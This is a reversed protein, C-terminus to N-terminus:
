TMNQLKVCLMMDVKLQRDNLVCSVVHFEIDELWKLSYYATM